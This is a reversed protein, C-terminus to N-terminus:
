LEMEKPDDEDLVFWEKESFTEEAIAEDKMKMYKGWSTAAVTGDELL